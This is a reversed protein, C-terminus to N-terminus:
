TRASAADNRVIRRRRIQLKFPTILGKAPSGDTDKFGLDPNGCPWRDSDFNRVYFFQRTQDSARSLRSWASKWPPGVCRKKRAWPNRFSAANHPQRAASRYLQSRHDAVDRRSTWRGWVTGSIITGSRHLQHLRCSSSRPACYRIAAHSLLFIIRTTLHTARSELSRCVM